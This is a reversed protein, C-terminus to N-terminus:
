KQDSGSKANELVGMMRDVMLAEGFRAAARAAAAEGLKRRAEQDGLLRRLAATLGEVDQPKVMVGTEGDGVIEGISGVDTTVVPLGCAMAQM